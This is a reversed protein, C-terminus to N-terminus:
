EYRRAAGERVERILSNIEPFPGRVQGIRSRVARAAGVMKLRKEIEQEILVVEQKKGAMTIAGGSSRTSQLVHRSNSEHGPGDRM